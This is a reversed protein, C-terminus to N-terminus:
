RPQQSQSPFPSHKVPELEISVQCRRWFKELPFSRSGKFSMWFYNEAFLNTVSGGVSICCFNASRFRNVIKQKSTERGKGAKAECSNFFWLLFPSFCGEEWDPQESQWMKHCFAWIPWLKFVLPVIKRLFIHGVWKQWLQDCNWCNTM